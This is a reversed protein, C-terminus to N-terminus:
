RDNQVSVRSCVLGVLGAAGGDGRWRRFLLQNQAQDSRNECGDSNM